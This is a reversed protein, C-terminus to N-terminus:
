FPVQFMLSTATTASATLYDVRSEMAPTFTGEACAHGAVLIAVAAAVARVLPSTQTM